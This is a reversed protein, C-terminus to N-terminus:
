RQMGLKKEFLLEKFPPVCHGYLEPYTLKNFVGVSKSRLALVAYMAPDDVKQQMAGEGNIMLAPDDDDSAANDLRSEHLCDDSNNVDSTLTSMVVSLDFSLWEDIASKKSKASKKEKQKGVATAKTSNKRKVKPSRPPALTKKATKPSADGIYISPISWSKPYKGNSLHDPEPHFSSDPVSLHSLGHKLDTM